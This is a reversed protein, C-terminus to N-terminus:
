PNAQTREDSIILETTESLQNLLTEIRETGLRQQLDLYIAESDPQVKRILEAGKAELSLWFVRGDTPDKRKRILGEAEFRKLIRSLSPGLILSRQALQSVEIEDQEALVRIVRWQQETLGHRALMPRFRSMIAERTRLLAIPLSRNTDTPHFLTDIM